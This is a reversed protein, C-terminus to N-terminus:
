LHVVATIKMHEAFGYKTSPSRALSTYRLWAQALSFAVMPGNAQAM